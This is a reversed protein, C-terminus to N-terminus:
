EEGWELGASYFLWGIEIRGVGSDVLVWPLVGIWSWDNIEFFSRM